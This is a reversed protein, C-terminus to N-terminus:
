KIEELLNRINQKFTETTFYETVRAKAAAGYKDRLEKDNTLTKIAEAYKEDDSNPVEIGTVNNVSVYNVGSHPITFTVAPKSFYMAEALALGFNENKTVSPFCFMDCAALFAKRYSDTIKGLFEIKDDESAERKLEETLPGEGAIYIKFNKDLFRSAKVLHILGKYPVHRGMAFCITKGTNKKRIREATAIDQENMQLSNEDVCYPVVKCKEKFYDVYDSEYLHVPTAGIVRFARKCLRKNQGKFLKGLIKQKTIDLHWYIVLKCAPYKKLIKLLSHAAFPNPYHFIIVDPQFEKFTKKLLKGYSFSLSQSSVKAFCGARIVEVGDVEDIKNGKEHNFCFIKQEHGDIAISVDRAVQEIGGIHPYFYNSIQLVKM